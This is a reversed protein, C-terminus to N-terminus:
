INTEPARSSVLFIRLAPASIKAFDPGSFGQFFLSCNLHEAPNGCNERPSQWFGTFERVFPQAGYPSLPATTARCGHRCATRPRAVAFKYPEWGNTRSNVPKLSVGRSFNPFMWPFKPKGQKKALNKLGLNQSFIRAPRGCRKPIM